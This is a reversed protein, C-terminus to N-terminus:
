FWCVHINDDFAGPNAALAKAHKSEVYEQFFYQWLVLGIEKASNGTDIYAENGTHPSQAMAAGLLVPVSLLHKM